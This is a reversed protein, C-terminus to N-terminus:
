VKHSRRSGSRKMKMESIEQEKKSDDMMDVIANLEKLLQHLIKSDDCNQDNLRTSIFM